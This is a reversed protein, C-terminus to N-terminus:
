AYVGVFPAGFEYGTNWCEAGSGVKAGSGSCSDVDTYLGFGIKDKPVGTANLIDAFFADSIDQSLTWYISQEYPNDPDYGRKSYDSPYPQTTNEWKTILHKNNNPNYDGRSELQQSHPTANIEPSMEDQGNLPGILVDDRRDNAYCNGNFSHSDAKCYSCCMSIEVINCTFYDNGHDMMFDHTQGLASGSAAKAYTKFKDDYDDAMLAMYNAM